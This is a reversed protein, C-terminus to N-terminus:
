RNTLNNTLLEITEVHAPNRTRFLIADQETALEFKSFEFPPTCECVVFSYDGDKHFAGFWNGWKDPSNLEEMIIADKDESLEVEGCWRSDKSIQPVILTGGHIWKWTEGIGNFRHWSSVCGNPLLYFIKSKEKTWSFRRYFGGEPHCKLDLGNVIDSWSLRYNHPYKKLNDIFKTISNILLQQEDATFESATESEKKSVSVIFSLKDTLKTPSFM